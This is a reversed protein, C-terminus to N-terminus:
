ASIRHHFKATFSYITCRYYQLFSLPRLPTPKMQQIVDQETFVLKDLNIIILEDTSSGSNRDGLEIIQYFHNSACAYVEVYLVNEQIKHNM